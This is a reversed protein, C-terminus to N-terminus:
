LKAIAELIAEAAAEDPAMRTVMAAASAESRGQARLAKYKTLAAELMATVPVQEQDEDMDEDLENPGVMSFEQPRKAETPVRDGPRLEKVLRCGTTKGFAACGWFMKRDDDPEKRIVMPQQCRCTPAKSQDM